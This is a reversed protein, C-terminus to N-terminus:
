HATKHCYLYLFFHKRIKSIVTNKWQSTQVSHDFMCMHLCINVYGEWFANPFKFNINMVESTSDHKETYKFLDPWM